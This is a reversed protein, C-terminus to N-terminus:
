RYPKRVFRIGWPRSTRARSQGRSHQTLRLHTHQAMRGEPNTLRGTSGVPTSRTQRACASISLNARGVPTLPSCSSCRFSSLRKYKKTNKMTVNLIDMSIVTFIWQFYMSSFWVMIKWDWATESLVPERPRMGLQYSVSDSLDTELSIKMSFVIFFCHFKM